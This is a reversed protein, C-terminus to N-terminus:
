RLFCIGDHSEAFGFNINIAKAHGIHLIGNPEPPFRTRVKGGTIKMHEKLLNKTNETTVYGETTYNKGPQHFILKRMVDQITLNSDNNTGENATSQISPNNAPKKPKEKTKKMASIM